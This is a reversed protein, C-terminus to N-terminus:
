HAPSLREVLHAVSAPHVSRTRSVLAQTLGAGGASAIKRLLAARMADDRGNAVGAALADVFGLNQLM